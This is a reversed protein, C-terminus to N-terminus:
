IHVKVVIKKAAARVGGYCMGPKHVDHPFFIGYDGAELVAKVANENDMFFGIDNESSYPVKEEARSIDMAEMCETGSLICQIDIYNRHGEFQSEEPLKTEYEQIFAFLATADLEYRGAPLNEDVARKIFAFAEEFKAHCGCYKECNKINDFIMYKVRQMKEFLLM